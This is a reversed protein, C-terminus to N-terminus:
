KWTTTWEMVYRCRDGRVVSRTFEIRRGRDDTLLRELLLGPSRPAVGLEGAAEDDLLVPEFMERAQGFRLGYTHRLLDYLPTSALSERTLGPCLGAPLHTTEYMIPEENALRLRVIRYTSGPLEAPGAADPTFDLVLTRPRMGKRTMEETFSYFRGLPQELPPAKVFTGKGPRRQLLGAAVLDNIALRVTLRSIGLMEALERESPIRYGSPWAGAAIKGRLGERVQQILPTELDRRVDLGLQAM